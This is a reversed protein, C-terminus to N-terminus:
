VKTKDRIEEKKGGERRERKGECGREKALWSGLNVLTVTETGKITEWIKM